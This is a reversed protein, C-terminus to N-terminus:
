GSALASDIVSLLGAVYNDPGFRALAVQRAREGMALAAPENAPNLTWELAHALADPDRPPVILGTQEHEVYDRVGMTDTVIVPKGMAMANLYTQEGASRDTRHELPVVVVSARSMLRVFEDHSIRGARVRAPLQSRQEASLRETALTMPASVRLSVEVLPAFDRNSYGGAFVSGDRGTPLALEEESLTYYYPTLHVRRSEVRWIEPFRHQHDRAHVCYHVHPGDILRVAARATLRDLLSGGVGWACDAFIVRPRRRRRAILVAAAMQDLPRGDADVVMADYRKSARVLTRALAPGRGRDPRLVDVRERWAARRPFHLTTLVQKRHGENM